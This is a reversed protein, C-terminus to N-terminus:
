GAILVNRPEREVVSGDLKKKFRSSRSCAFKSPKRVGIAKKRKRYVTAKEAVDEKTKGKHCEVCLLRLNSERHQGGNVLAVKHDIQWPEGGVGCRRTCEQCRGNDRGFIRVQVRPPIAQDDHRAIWEAISRSM